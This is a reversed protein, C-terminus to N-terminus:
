KTRDKGSRSHERTRKRKDNKSRLYKIFCYTGLILVVPRCPLMLAITVIAAIEHSHKM